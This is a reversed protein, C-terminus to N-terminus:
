EVRARTCPRSPQGGSARRSARRRAPGRCTLRVSPRRPRCYQVIVYVHPLLGTPMLYTLRPARMHAATAIPRPCFRPGMSRQSRYTICAPVRHDPAPRLVIPRQPLPPACMCCRLVLSSPLSPQVFRSPAGVLQIGSGEEGM